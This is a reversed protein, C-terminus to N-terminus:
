RWSTAAQYREIASVPIRGRNGVAIGQEKAWARIAGSRRRSSATRAPGQSRRATPPRAHDIFPALQRRFAATNSANLDIEYEAGALSFRLTQDAPGGDLDDELALTTRTMMEARGAHSPRAQVTGDQIRPHPSAVGGAASSAASLTLATCRRPVIM